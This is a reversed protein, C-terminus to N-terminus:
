NLLGSNGGPVNDPADGMVLITHDHEPNTCRLAAVIKDVTMGDPGFVLIANKASALALLEILNKADAISQEEENM